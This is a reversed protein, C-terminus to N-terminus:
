KSKWAKIHLKEFSSGPKLVENAFSKLGKSCLIGGDAPINQFLSQFPVVM